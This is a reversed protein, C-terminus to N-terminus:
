RSQSVCAQISKQGGVAHFGDLQHRLPGLGAILCDMAALGRETAHLEHKWASAFRSKAYLRLCVGLHSRFALALRAAYDPIAGGGESLLACLWIASRVAYGVGDGSIPDLSIAAPGCAFWQGGDGYLPWSIRPAVARGYKGAPTMRQEMISGNGLPASFTWGDNSAVMRSVPTEVSPSSVIRCQLRRSGFRYSSAGPPRAFAYITVCPPGDLSQGYLGPLAALLEREPLVWVPEAIISPGEEGSWDVYRTELRRWRHLPLAQHFVDQMLSATVANIAIAPIPRRRAPSLSVQVGRRALLAACALASIGSGHILARKLM